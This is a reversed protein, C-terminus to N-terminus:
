LQNLYYQVAIRILRSNLSDSSSLVNLLKNFNTRLVTRGDTLSGILNIYNEMNMISKVLENELEEKGKTTLHQYTDNVYSILGSSLYKPEFIEQLDKSVKVALSSLKRRITDNQKILSFNQVAFEKIQNSALDYNKQQILKNIQTQLNKMALPFRLSTKRSGNESLRDSVYKSTSLLQVIDTERLQHLILNQIEPPLNLFDEFDNGLPVLNINEVNISRPPSASREKKGENIKPPSNRKMKM